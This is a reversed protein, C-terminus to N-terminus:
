IHTADLTVLLQLSIFLNYPNIGNARTTGMFIVKKPEIKKFLYFIMVKDLVCLPFLFALCLLM